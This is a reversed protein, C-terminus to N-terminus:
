EAAKVASANKQAAKEKMSALRGKYSGIMAAQKSDPALAIAEDCVKIADDYKGAQVFCTAKTMVVDQKMGAEFENEKLTRDVLAVVGDVDKARMMKMAESKFAALKEKAAAQKAFGSEDKPDAAKIQEIVDGYFRTVADDELEMTQLAAVLQKAKATGEAKAAAAFAQDRVAKKSLFENLSAVYKEPGGEQYGTKAYPKGSADCLLVTPFGRVAFKQQLEKNQAQTADDLKSKDKPYDLSVLIFKDKVGAKFPEQSFVEKDLKICWGCWDSGTFDILLDKKEEVAQKKAAEFNTLWGEGSALALGICQIAVFAGIGIKNFINKM